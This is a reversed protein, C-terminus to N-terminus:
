AGVRELGPMKQRGGAKPACGSAAGDNMEWKATVTKPQTFFQLPHHTHAHTHTHTHKSMEYKATVTM